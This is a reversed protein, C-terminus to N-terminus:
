ALVVGEEAGEVIAMINRQDCSELYADGEEQLNTGDLNLVIIRDGPSVEPLHSRSGDPNLIGKNIAVVTAYRSDHRKESPLYLKFGDSFHMESENDRRIIITPWITTVNDYKNSRLPAEEGLAKSVALDLENM